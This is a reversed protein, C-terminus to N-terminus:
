RRSSVARNAEDHVVHSGFMQQKGPVWATRKREEEIRSDNEKQSYRNAGMDVGRANECIVSSRVEVTRLDTVM